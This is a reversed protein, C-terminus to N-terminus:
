PTAHSHLEKNLDTILDLAADIWRLDAALHGLAYTTALSLAPGTSRNSDSQRRYEQAQVAYADRQHRLYREARAPNTTLLTLVLKETLTSSVDYPAPPEVEALWRDLEERGAPTIAFPRRQPGLGKVSTASRAFGRSRLRALTAYVQGFALPRAMPFRVDHEHKLEYGHREGSALLGLLVHSTSM